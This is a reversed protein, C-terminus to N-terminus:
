PLDELLKQAIAFSIYADICAYDIQSPSLDERGWNSRSIKKPKVMALGLILRALTKLGAHKLDPRRLTKVALTTLELSQKKCTLGYDRALKDADKQIEVGALRIQDDNLFNILSSPMVDMYSLQVILCGADGCLQLLAAKNDQGRYSNPKWELHMGFLKSACRRQQLVWKEVEHSDATFTVPITRGQFQVLGTKTSCSSSPMMEVAREFEQKGKVQQADEGQGSMQQESEGVVAKRRWEVRSGQQTNANDPRPTWNSKRRRSKRKPKTPTAEAEKSSSSAMPAGKLKAESFNDHSQFNPARGENVNRPGISRNRGDGHQQLGANMNAAKQKDEAKEGQTSM